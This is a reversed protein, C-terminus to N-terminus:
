VPQGLHKHKRTPFGLVKAGGIATLCGGGRAERGKLRANYEGQRSAKGDAKRGESSTRAAHAQVNVDVNAQAVCAVQFAPSRFVKHRQNAAAIVPCNHSIAGDIGDTDTWFLAVNDAASHPLNPRM